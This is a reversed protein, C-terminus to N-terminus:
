HGPACKGGKYGMERAGGEDGGETRNRWRTETMEGVRGGEKGSRRHGRKDDEDEWNEARMESGVGEGM